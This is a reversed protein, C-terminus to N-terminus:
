DDKKNKHKREIQRLRNGYIVSQSPGLMRRLSRVTNMNLPGSITHLVLKAEGKANDWTEVAYAEDARVHNLAHERFNESVKECVPCKM